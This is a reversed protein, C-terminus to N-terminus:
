KDSLDLHPHDVLSGNIFCAALLPFAFGEEGAEFLSLM